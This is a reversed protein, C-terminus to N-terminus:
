IGSDAAYEIKRSVRYLLKERGAQIRHTECEVWNGHDDYTYTHELLSLDDEVQVPKELARVVRGQRNKVSALIHICDRYPFIRDKVPRLAQKSRILVEDGEFYAEQVEVWDPNPYSRRLWIPRGLSDQRVECRKVWSESRGGYTYAVWGDPRYDLVIYEQLEEGYFREKRALRGAQDYAYAWREAKFTREILRHDQDYTYHITRVRHHSNGPEIREEISLVPGHCAIDPECELLERLDQGSLPIFLCLAVFLCAHRM